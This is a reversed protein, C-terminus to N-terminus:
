ASGSEPRNPVRFTFISGQGVVSEVSVRGGHREAIDRSISLGLGSGAHRTTYFPRFIDRIEEPSIGKGTDAVHFSTDHETQDLSVTVSGDAPTAQLANVILNVLAQRILEGDVRIPAPDPFAESRLAVKGQEAAPQVLTLARAIIETPDAPALKPESPRAFTLLDRVAVEIREVQRSMEDMIPKLTEDDGIRRSVLDLGGAIGVVPNKIEHAVGSALEGVTALQQARRIEKQHLEDERERAEALNTTMRDFARGLDGIEDDTGSEIRTSLEGAGVREAANALNRVPAVINGSVIWAAAVVAVGFVIGFILSVRRLLRLPGLADAVPLEAVYRWGLDEIPVSIGFVEQGQRDSYRGLSGVAPEGDADVGTVTVLPVSYDVRGHPHSVYLPRGSADIVFSEISGALHPPIDLVGGLGRPGMLAGLRFSSDRTATGLPVHIRIVPRGTSSPGELVDLFSGGSQPIRTGALGDRTMVSGASGLVVGDADQIFLADFEGSKALKGELDANLTGGDAAMAELRTLLRDIQDRINKAQVSAIASMQRDILREIIRGSELYGLMNSALLPVLSLVLFWRLLRRGLRSRLPNRGVGTQSRVDPASEM